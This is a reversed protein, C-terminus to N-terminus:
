RRGLRARPQATALPYEFQTPSGVKGGEVEELTQLRADFKIFTLGMEKRGLVRQAYAEPTPEDPEPTDAYIRVKDRYKGGLFQWCPVGYVKGILDWLAIEIGSM